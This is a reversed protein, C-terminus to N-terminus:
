GINKNRKKWVDYVAVCIAIISSSYVVNLTSDWTIEDKFIYYQFLLGIVVGASISVILGLGLVFYKKM